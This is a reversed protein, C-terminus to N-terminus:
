LEVFLHISYEAPTEGGTSFWNMFGVAFAAVLHQIAQTFGQYGRIDM